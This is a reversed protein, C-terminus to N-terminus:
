KPSPSPRVHRAVESLSRLLLDPKAARLGAATPFPGLVGISRVGARRAMEIDEASDGVYVCDEPQAGLRRLALRLPSPHPKKRPTDESCVCASFCGDFGFAQLQARVRDGSGGTVLGLVFKRELARVASRAGSLLPPREKAYAARWLRNARVWRSRPIKAARYVQYWDPSYSRELEPLGWGIGLSGFMALYARSDAAYSDLITGDWDLLVFRAELYSRQVTAFRILLGPRLSPEQRGV